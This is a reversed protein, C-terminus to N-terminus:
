WVAGNWREKGSFLSLEKTKLFSWAEFSVSYNKSTAKVYLAPVRAIFAQCFPKM